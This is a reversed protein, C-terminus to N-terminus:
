LPRIELENPGNIRFSFWNACTGPHCKVLLVNDGSKLEVDAARPKWTNFQAGDEKCAEPARSSTVPKGNVWLNAWWDCGLMIRVRCAKPSHVITRAYCVGSAHTGCRYPFNVGCDAHEGQREDSYTWSVPRDEAGAYSAKPEFGEEPPLISAMAKRVECIPKQPGFATPFPGIAQWCESPVPRWVPALRWAYLGVKGTSQVSLRHLGANLSLAPFDWTDPCGPNAIQGSIELQNGNLLFSLPNTSNTVLGISLDFQGTVPVEFKLELPSGLGPCYVQWDVWGPCWAQSDEFRGVFNQELYDRLSDGSSVPVMPPAHRDPDDGLVPANGAEIRPADGGGLLRAPRDLPTSPKLTLVAPGWDFLDESLGSFLVADGTQTSTQLTTDHGLVRIDTVQGVGDLLVSQGKPRSLHVYLRGDKQTVPGAVHDAETYPSRESGYIAVGNRDLWRGVAELREFCEPQLSGDARPGINLLLNGGYRACRILNKIIDGASKFDRDHINYGWSRNLTMCAEWRRGPEPPKVHQEPTSFDEPLGSRDNILINPQLARVMANLEASRWFKAQMGRDQIGPVVAGDYWLMDIKGYNNMLERIQDHTEQVMSEWGAPEASPGNYIAAHQWSMVSHYLGVRLGAERCATVYEAVFDRGPATRTSNFPTTKTNFLCYGDHHRTTMVMYRMGARKALLALSRADFHSGTFQEALRNYERRDLNSKFLVWEGNEHGLLSYLGWHFFLGFRAQDFWNSGANEESL